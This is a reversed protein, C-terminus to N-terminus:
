SSVWNNLFDISNKVLEFYERPNYGSLIRSIKSPRLYFEIFARKKSKRIHDTSFDPYSVVSDNTEFKSWDRTILLNNKNVYDWFETGPFPVACYFNVYDPNAKKIFKITEQVTRRNEGPLGFMVHAQTELGFKRCLRITRFAQEITIDKKINNLIKQSGSEVGLTTAKCNASVLKKIRFRDLTDVRSAIYWDVDLNRRKIEDCVKVVMKTNSTFIEGWMGIKKIKFSSVVEEVEDVISTSSRFRQCKGYYLFSTCFICNYPCGRNVTILTWTDKSFPFLYKKNDVLHRAPFPLTDLDKIFPRPPNHYVMGNKKYSIGLVSNLNQKKSLKKAIELVTIESEERVVADFESDLLTQEPLATCHVGIAVSFIDLKKCIEAVRIDGYFSPTSITVIVLDPLNKNILSELKPWSINEATCDFIKVDFNEKELVAAITLLSIPPFVYEYSSIRQQCRGERAYRFGRYEPPNILFIKM